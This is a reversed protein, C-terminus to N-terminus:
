KVGYYFKNGPAKQGMVTMGINHLANVNKKFASKMDDGSVFKIESNKIVTKAIEETETIGYEKCLKATTATDASVMYVTGELEKLFKKFTSKNKRVYGERVVVCGSIIGSKNSVADWESSLDMVSRADDVKNLLLTKTPEATVAIKAVGDNFKEILKYDDAVSTVKVNDSTIGNKSLIYKIRFETDTNRGSVFIEKDKLDSISSVEVGNTVVSLGCSTVLGCLYVGGDTKNYLSAAVYAPVVAIDAQERTIKTTVAQATYVTSFTYENKTQGLKAENILHVMASSNLDGM